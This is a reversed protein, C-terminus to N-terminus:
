VAGGMSRVAASNKRAEGTVEDAALLHHLDLDGPDDAVCAFCEDIEPAGLGARALYGEVASRIERRSRAVHRSVTAEHEGLLRGIQALTMQRAYYCSLRLRDPPQLLALAFALAARMLDLFREREPSPPRSPAQLEGPTEAEPLADTRRDGRVRDVYRQTLVARLWTALSSRGHYYGLLPAKVRTDTVGFLEAYLADALDRARGGPALADACRYLVPRYTEIFHQWAGEHGAACACALALDQLHLNRLFSETTGSTPTQAAFAKQVAIALAAAFTDAPVSWRAAASEAHLRVVLGADLPPLGTM